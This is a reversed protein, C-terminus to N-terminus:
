DTEKELTAEEPLTEETATEGVETDEVETEEAAIEEAATEETKSETTPNISEPLQSKANIVQALQGGPRTLIGAIKTAPAILLSIIKARLEDMTPLNALKKIVETDILEGDMMGGVISLKENDKAFDVIIKPSSTLENSFAIATPGSFLDELSKASTNDVALKALSNKAVKFSTNAEERLSNRLSSIEEVTLGENQTVILFNSEDFSKNLSSVIKEKSARDV